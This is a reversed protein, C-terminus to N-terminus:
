KKELFLNKVAGSIKNNGVKDEFFNKVLYALGANLSLQFLEFLRSTDTLVTLGTTQLENGLALLLTSLVTVLVANGVDRLNIHFIDSRISTEEAMTKQNIIQKIEYEKKIDEPPVDIFQIAGYKFDRNVVERPFYFLGKDGVDKDYSNQVVLYEKGDIVKHAICKKIAHGGVIDGLETPIVGGESYTFNERWVTGTLVSQHKERNQWLATKINDFIDYRGKEVWIFTQKRYKYALKIEEEPWSKLNNWKSAYKDDSKCHSCFKVPLCGVKCAGKATSRLDNGDEGSVGSISFGAAAQFDPCLEIEEQDESVAGTAYGTCRQTQKQNKIITLVSFDWDNKPVEKIDIQQIVAGLHFPKDREDEPTDTLGFNMKGFKKKTM